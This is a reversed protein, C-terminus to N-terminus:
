VPSIPVLHASVHSVGRPTATLDVEAFCSTAFVVAYHGDIPLPRFAVAHGRFAKPLRVTRGLLQAFGKSQVRRVLDGPLYELPPLREPYRRESPRYRAAPVADELAEHPREHNYVARWADFRRQGEALDCLPWRLVERKLTQHFREDKGLTQPHYPRSHSVHIGLRLLWVGLPTYPSGERDGWPSGNDVAIRLPLGYSRFADVLSDRVTATREDPCARLVISYRSHDDLVTLPHCRAGGCPVHGKFDMQWLDNPAAHEFRTFARPLGARPGDLLGHRRLIATVTSPAPVDTLGLDRLRRSLKRGGWASHQRRLAVVQAELQDPTQRPSSRPRRSRDELGALGETKFRQLWRYGTRRTIEFQRCLESLNTGEVGALQVFEERLSM